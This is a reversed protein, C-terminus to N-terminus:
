KGFIIGERGGGRPFHMERGKVKTKAIHSAKAFPSNASIFLTKFHTEPTLTARKLQQMEEGRASCAETTVWGLLTLPM